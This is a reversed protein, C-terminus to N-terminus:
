QRQVAKSRLSAEWAEGLQSVSHGYIAALEAAKRAQVSGDNSNKLTQYAQLFKDKGYTDMLFKVFSAAEPYAVPPRSQASGIETYAMLEALEIWDGEAKLARARDEITAQGGGLDELAPAGLRQSMYVAFGESFLAPPRGFRHMLIHVTEHFPDLSEKDNYVEVITIGYAWGMGQHGTEWHKTAKDEFLVLKIRLNPDTGLFRCIERYGKEKEQAIRKSQRAATSDPFFYVDLHETNYREMRPLVHEEWDQWLLIRPTYGTIGDIRWQGDEQAFDITWTEDQMRALLSFGAPKRIVRLPELRLFPEREWVFACDLVAQPEMAKAFGEYGTSQFEAQQYDATFSQWAQAYDRARINGQIRRFVALIADAQDASVTEEQQLDNKAWTLDRAQYEARKFWQNRTEGNLWAEENFGNRPGANVFTLRIFTSETLPGQIKFAFRTWVTAGAPITKFFGAGWGVGHRGYEPSRTYIHTRLVQDLQSTNKVEVRVVNKGQQLPEFQLDTVELKTAPQQGQARTSGGTAALLMVATLLLYGAREFM